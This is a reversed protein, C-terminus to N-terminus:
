LLFLNLSLNLVSVLVENVPAKPSRRDAVVKPSQTKPTRLKPNPSSVPDAEATKLKRATRPTATPSKKQPVELSGPRDYDCHFFLWCSLGLSWLLSLLLVSCPFSHVLTIIIIIIVKTKSDANSPILTQFCERQLLVQYFFFSHIHSFSALFM